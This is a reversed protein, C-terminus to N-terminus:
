GAVEDFSVGKYVEGTAIVLSECWAVDAVLKDVADDLEALEADIPAGTEPDWIASDPVGKAKLPKLYRMRDLEADAQAQLTSIVAAKAERYDAGAQELEAETLSSM